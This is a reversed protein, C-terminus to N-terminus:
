SPARLAAKEGLPPPAGPETSCMLGAHGAACWLTRRTEDWVMAEISAGGTPADDSEVTLEVIREQRGAADIRAIGSRRPTQKVAAFLAADASNGGFALAVHLRGADGDGDSKGGPLRDIEVFPQERVNRTM